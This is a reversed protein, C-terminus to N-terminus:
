NMQIKRRLEVSKLSPPMRDNRRQSDCCTYAATGLYRRVFFSKAACIDIMAHCKSLNTRLTAGNMLDEKHMLYIEFGYSDSFFRRQQLSRIGCRENAAESM